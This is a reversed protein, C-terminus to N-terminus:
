APKWVTFTRGDGRDSRFETPRKGGPPAVCVKLMGDVFEYIGEQTKGKNSGGTNLYDITGPVQSPDWTFEMKMMIQPGAYVTTENGHTVRKVWKVAMPDMPQGDMVASVMQWEGEFESVLASRAASASATASAVKDKKLPVSERRTLTEFVFGSRAPASFESPRVDGRTSLCIKWTDGALEYIGLNTNGKEPGADFTMNLQCPKRSNDLTFTGEYVTGMGISSFRSGTVEVRANALMGGSITNGEMELEAVAWTGQLLDLDDRMFAYIYFQSARRM